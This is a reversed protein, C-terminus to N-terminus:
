QQILQKHVIYTISIVFYINHLILEFNDYGKRLGYLLLITTVFGMIFNYITDIKM